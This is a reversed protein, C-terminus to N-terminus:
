NYDYMGTSYVTGDTTLILTHLKGLAVKKVTINENNLYTPEIPSVILEPM